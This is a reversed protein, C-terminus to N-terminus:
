STKCMTRIQDPTEKVSVQDKGVLQLITYRDHNDRRMYCVNDLNVHVDGHDDTLKIWNDM